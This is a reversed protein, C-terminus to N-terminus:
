TGKAGEKWQKCRSIVPGSLSCKFGGVPSCTKSLEGESQYDKFNELLFEISDSTSSWIGV